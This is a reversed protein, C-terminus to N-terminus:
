LGCCLSLVVKYILIEKFFFVNSNTNIVCVATKFSFSFLLSSLTLFYPHFSQIQPM